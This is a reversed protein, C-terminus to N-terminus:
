GVSVCRPRLIVVTPSGFSITLTDDTDLYTSTSTQDEELVFLTIVGGLVEISCDAM